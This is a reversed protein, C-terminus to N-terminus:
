KPNESELTVDLRLKDDVHIVIKRTAPKLGPRKWKLITDAWLWSRSIRYAGKADASVKTQLGQAASVAVLAPM